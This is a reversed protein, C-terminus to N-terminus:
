SISCWFRALLRAFSSAVDSLKARESAIFLPVLTDTQLDAFIVSDLGVQEVAVVVFQCFPHSIKTSLPVEPVKSLLLSVRSFTPCGEFLLATIM